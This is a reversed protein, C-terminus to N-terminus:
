HQNPVAGRMKIHEAEIVAIVLVRTREMLQLLEQFLKGMKTQLKIRSWGLPLLRQIEKSLLAVWVVGVAEQFKLNIHIVKGKNIKEEQCKLDVSFSQRKAQRLAIQM